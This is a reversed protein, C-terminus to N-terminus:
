PLRLRAWIGAHDSPWLGDLRDGPWEGVIGAAVARFGNRMLVYDIRRYLNRTMVRVTVPSRRAEGASATVCALLALLAAAGKV